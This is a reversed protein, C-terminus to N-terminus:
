DVNRSLVHAFNRNAQLIPMVMVVIFKQLLMKVFFESKRISYLPYEDFDIYIPGFHNILPTNYKLQTFLSGNGFSATGLDIIMFFYYTLKGIIKICVGFIDERPSKDPKNLARVLFHLEKLLGITQVHWALPKQYLNWM